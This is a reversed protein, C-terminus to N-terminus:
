VAYTGPSAGGIWAGFGPPRRQWRTVPNVEVQDRYRATLRQLRDGDTGDTGDTPAQRGAISIAKLHKSGMVAGLGMRAAAFRRDSVVSAYRVLSEGAPGIAAVHCGRGLRAELADVVESTDLGWLDRAPVLAPKGEVLTLVGPEEA